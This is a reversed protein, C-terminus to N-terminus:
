HKQLQLYIAAANDSVTADYKPYQHLTSYEGIKVQQKVQELSMGQAALRTVENTLYELYNRFFILNKRDGVAFHGPVFVDVPRALFTNLTRVWNRVDGQDMAPCSGNLFLDGTAIVKQQPFYVYADSLTHGPGAGWVEVTYPAVSITLSDTFTISAPVVSSPFHPPTAALMEQTRQRTWVTSLIAADPEYLKNGGQHDLHYHTNVVFRVPLSSVTRIESLCKGAEMENLGTDVVLIANTGVLFTSNASASNTSICAYLDKGIQQPKDAAHATHSSLLFAWYVSLLFFAKFFIRSTM